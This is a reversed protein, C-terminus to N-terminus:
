KVEKWFREVEEKMQKLNCVKRERWERPFLPVYDAQLFREDLLLIIGRDEQTRIVRGAAQLVKNIGPYRFAYDFGSMGREDYYDKLIQRENSIQPLGTGVIIAGILKDNKLDIGESFIGGMVCFAVLSGDREQEFMQLFQEREQEQMNSTQMCIELIQKKGDRGYRGDIVAEGEVLRHFVEYVDQMMKYSPFFVMYNGEKGEVAAQIYQAIRM